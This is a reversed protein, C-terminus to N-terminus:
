GQGFSISSAIMNKESGINEGTCVCFYKVFNVSNINKRKTHVMMDRLAIVLNVFISQHPPVIKKLTDSRTIKDNRKTKVTTSKIVKVKTTKYCFCFLLLFM